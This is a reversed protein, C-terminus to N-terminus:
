PSKEKKRLVVELTGKLSVVQDINTKCTRKRYFGVDTSTSYSRYGFASRPYPSCAESQHSLDTDRFTDNQGTDKIPVEEAAGFSTSVATVANDSGLM